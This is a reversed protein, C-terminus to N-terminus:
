PSACFIQLAYAHLCVDRLRFAQPAGYKKDGVIPHGLAALQARIQHKRGSHLCIEVLSQFRLEPLESLSPGSINVANVVAKDMNHRDLVFLSNYSLQAAVVKRGQASPPSREDTLSGTSMNAVVKIVSKTSKFLLHSCIGSGTLKGNVVCLYRKENQRSRFSEGLTAASQASKAFVLVGSCPRDIRHVLKPVIAEKKKGGGTDNRQLSRIYASFLDEHLGSKGPQSLVAPPKYFAVFNKDEYLLLSSIDNLEGKWDGCQGIPLIQDFKTSTAM